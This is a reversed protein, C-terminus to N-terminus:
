NELSYDGNINLPNQNLLKTLVMFIDPMNDLFEKPTEFFHEVSVAFFEHHNVYAYERLYGNKPPNTVYYQFLDLMKELNVEVNSYLWQHQENDHDIIFAHAWEHIALNLNDIPHYFGQVTDLWSLLITGGGFTLGKVYQNLLKSFFVGPYLAIGSFKPLTYKHLGFTLQVLGSIVLIQKEFTVVEGERGVIKKQQLAHIVRSIFKVRGEKSLHQYYPNLGANVRHVKWVQRRYSPVKVYDPTGYFKLKYFFYVGRLKYVLYPSTFSLALWFKPSRFM